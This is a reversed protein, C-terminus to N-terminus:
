YLGHHTPMAACASRTTLSLLCMLADVLTKGLPVNTLRTRHHPVDPSPAYVSLLRRRPQREDIRQRLALVSHFCCRVPTPPRRQVVALRAHGQSQNREQPHQLRINVCPALFFLPAVYLVPLSATANTTQGFPRRFIWSLCARYEKMADQGFAFFMFYAVSSIPITWWLAYTYRTDQVSIIFTPFAAVRSFNSHVDAWSTYPRFGARFTFLMNALTVALGWFMQFLALSMLRFYRSPTLASNTALHREFTIRRVWFHHLAMASLVLSAANLLFLPLWLILLAAVSVYTAPRCGFEQVIDFRHGQVVYHLAMYILPVGLCLVCDFIQRRRKESPSTRVQRVSSVRELHICLSLISAPLSINSGMFLKTSIDCWVLAKIEFNGDWLIGNVGNIFNDIFLWVAISITPVTGARWHWPLPVLVLAACLFSAVLLAATM